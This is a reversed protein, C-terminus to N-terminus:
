APLAREHIERRGTILMPASYILLMISLLHFVTFSGVVPAYPQFFEWVFRQVACWGTALYLGNDIVFRDRRFVAALYVILFAAM